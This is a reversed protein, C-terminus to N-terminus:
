APGEAKDKVQVAARGVRAGAEDCFSGVSPRAMCRHWWWTARAGRPCHPLPSSPPHWHRGQGEGQAGTLAQWRCTRWARQDRGEGRGALPHLSAPSPHTTGRAGEMSEGRRLKGKKPTQGM